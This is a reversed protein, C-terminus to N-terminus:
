RNVSWTVSKIYITMGGTGGCSECSSTMLHFCKRTVTWRHPSNVPWRHIGCVFAMSASSQHKRQYTGLYVTSYIITLSTIQSAMMSMIVDSYHSKLPSSTNVRTGPSTHTGWTLTIVTPSSREAKIYSGFHEVFSGQHVIFTGTANAQHVIFAGATNAQHVFWNTCLTSNEYMSHFLTWVSHNHLTWALFPRRWSFALVVSQIKLTVLSLDPHTWLFAPPM